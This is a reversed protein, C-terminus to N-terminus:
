LTVSLTVYWGKQYLNGLTSSKSSNLVGWDYGSKLQYKKLQVGGGVGIHLNLRNLTSNYLNSTYSTPIDYVPSVGNYTSIVGQSQSLGFSLTPGTFASFKLNKNIAYTYFLHVPLNLSQGFSIYHVSKSMSYGQLKDSYVVNYLIGSLLSFDNKLPYETTLGIKLGNFYTTSKGSAYSGPNNYGIELRNTLKKFILSDLSIHPHKKETKKKQAAVTQINAILSLIILIFVTIKRM